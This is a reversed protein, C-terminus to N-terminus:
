KKSKSYYSKVKKKLLEDLKDKLENINISEIAMQTIETDVDDGFSEKLVGYISPNPIHVDIILESRMKNNSSQRKLLERIPNDPAGTYMNDGVEQTTGDVPAKPKLKKALPQGIAKKADLLEREKDIIREERSAIKLIVDGILDKRCRTNDEFVLYGDEEHKAVVIEGIRETKVWQYTHPKIRPGNAM